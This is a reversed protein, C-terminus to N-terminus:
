KDEGAGDLQDLMDHLIGLRSSNAVDPLSTRPCFMFSPKSGSADAIVAKSTVEELLRQKKQQSSPPACFGLGSSNGETMVFFRCATCPPLAPHSSDQLLAGGRIQTALNGFDMDVSTWTQQLM